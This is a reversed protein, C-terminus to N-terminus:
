KKEEKKFKFVIEDKGIMKLKERAINEVFEPDEKMRKIQRHLEVNKQQLVANEAELISLKQKAANLDRLGKDGVIILAMYGCLILLAFFFAIKLHSANM